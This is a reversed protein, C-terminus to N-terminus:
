LEDFSIVTDRAHIAAAIDHFETGVGSLVHVVHDVDAVPSGCLSREETISKVFQLYESIPRSDRKAKSLKERLSLIRTASKNTGWKCSPGHRQQSRPMKVIPNKSNKLDRYVKVDQPGFLIFHSSSTLQAVSLLNKKMGIHAISLKSNNATVVVRSGKYELLSQLKEKDGTMHNSSGQHRKVKDDNRKSGSTAHQKNNRRSKNIYLPEEEGKLSVGGMQKAM